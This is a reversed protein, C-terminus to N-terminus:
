RTNFLAKPLYHALHHNERLLSAPRLGFRRHHIQSTTVVFPTKNHGWQSLPHQFVELDAMIRRGGDPEVQVGDLLKGPVEAFRWILEAGPVNTSIVLYCAGKPFKVTGESRAM